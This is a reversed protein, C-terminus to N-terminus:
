VKINRGKSIIRKTKKVYFFQFVLGLVIFLTLGGITISYNRVLETKEIESKAENLELELLRNKMSLQMFMLFDNLQQARKEGDKYKISKSLRIAESLYSRSTKIEEINDNLCLSMGILIDVKNSDNEATNLDAKLIDYRNENERRMVDQHTRDAKLPPREQAVLCLPPLIFLLIIVLRM